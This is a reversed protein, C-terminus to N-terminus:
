FRNDVPLKYPSRTIDNGRVQQQFQVMDMLNQAGPSLNTGMENVLGQVQQMDIGPGLALSPEVQQLEVIVRCVLVNSRGALSLLQLVLVSSVSVSSHAPSAVFM